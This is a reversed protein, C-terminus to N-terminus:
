GFPLIDVKVHNNRGLLTKRRSIHCHGYQIGLCTVQERQSLACHLALLECSPVALRLSIFSLVVDFGRWAM